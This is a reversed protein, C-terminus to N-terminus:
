SRLEVGREAAVRKAVPSALPEDRSLSTVADAAAAPDFAGHEDRGAAAGDGGAGGWSAWGGQEASPAPTSEGSVEQSPADPSDVESAAAEGSGDSAGGGGDGDLEGLPEGVAVTTGADALIRTLTGAAPSEVETDVKDTSIECIVDGESVEDGVEKHWEIVTGEEVSVGMHPMPIVTGTAAPSM